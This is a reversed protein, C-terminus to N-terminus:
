NLTDLNSLMNTNRNPRCRERVINRRGAQHENPSTAAWQTGDKATMGSATAEVESEEDEDKGDESEKDEDEQDKDENNLAIEDDTDDCDSAAAQSPPFYEGDSSDLVCDDDSEEAEFTEELNKNSQSRTIREGKSVNKHIGSRNCEFNSITINKSFYSEM